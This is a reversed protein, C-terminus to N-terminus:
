KILAICEALSDRWYPIQLDFTQKIKAKNLLSFKPRIAPTPYQSTEIPNIITNFGALDRIAIAFDYWSAVGENSYNYIGSKWKKDNIIHLVAAALDRAYTPSGIQDYIINLSEREKCFRLITKVFNNGFSSYVWSTRIILADPCYQVALMEGELKSAGYVSLPNTIDEECLPRSLSGDFIFDTSFHIFRINNQQCAKALFGVGTGNVSLAMDKESEAKDVATYAATNIVFDFQNESFFNTVFSEDTIDLESRTVFHFSHTSGTSIFKLESGLQGHAGTVLIRSM